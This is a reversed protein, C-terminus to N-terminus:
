RIGKLLDDNYAHQALWSADAHNDDVVQLDLMVQASSVSMEKARDKKTRPPIGATRRWELHSYKRIKSMPLGQLQLALEWRGRAAGMGLVQATPLGKNAPVAAHDEMVVVPQGAVSELFAAFRQLVETMNNPDAIRVSGGDQQRGNAHIAWGSRAAQDIALYVRPGKTRKFPHTM